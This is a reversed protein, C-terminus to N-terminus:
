ENKQRLLNTLQGITLYNNTKKEFKANAITDLPKGEFEPPLGKYCMIRKFAVKGRPNKYSLMGRVVRRVFRDPQTPLFPGAMPGGRDKQTKYKGLIVEKRGTILAKECNVIDIKEGLLSKKAVSTAMRGLILNTADIIM